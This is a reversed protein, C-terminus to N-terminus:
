SARVKSREHVLRDLFKLYMSLECCIFDGEKSCPPLVGESCPLKVRCAAFQMEVKLM